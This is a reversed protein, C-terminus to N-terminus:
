RCVVYRMDAYDWELRIGNWIVTSYSGLGALVENAPCSYWGTAYVASYNSM